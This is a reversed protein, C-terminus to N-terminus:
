FKIKSTGIKVVKKGRELTRPIPQCGFHRSKPILNKQSFTGFDGFDKNYLFPVKESKKGGKRENGFTELTGLIGLAGRFNWVKFTGM